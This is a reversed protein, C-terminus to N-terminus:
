EKYTNTANSEQQNKSKKIKQNKAHSRYVVARPPLIDLNQPTALLARHQSPFTFTLQIACEGTDNRMICQSLRSCNRRECGWWQLLAEVVAVAVAVVTAALWGWWASVVGRIRVRGIGDRLAGAIDTSLLGIWLRWQLGVGGRGAAAV